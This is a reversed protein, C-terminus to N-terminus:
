IEMGKTRRIHERCEPLPPFEVWRVDNQYARRTVIEAGFWDRAARAILDYNAAKQGPYNDALYDRAAARLDKMPVAVPRDEALFIGGEDLQDCEYVGAVLLEHM